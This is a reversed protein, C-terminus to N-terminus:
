VHEPGHPHPEIELLGWSHSLLEQVVLIRDPLIQERLELWPKQHRLGESHRPASCAAGEGLVLVSWGWPHIPEAEWSICCLSLGTKQPLEVLFPWVQQFGAGLVLCPLVQHRGWLLDKFSLAAQTRRTQLFLELEGM